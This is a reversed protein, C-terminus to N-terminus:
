KERMEYDPDEDMLQLMIDAIEPDFQTGRGDVIEQRVVEQPLAKRYSRNSSMADYSDAVAIIRAIEPIRTGELRDPYGTGDYREHHYRSGISLFPYEQISSLIQHGKESHEKIIDYESETLKDNKNIITNPIGIKGVDHLLAAYYVRTCTDEDMGKKRAIMRACSFLAAM